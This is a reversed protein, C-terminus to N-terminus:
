IFGQAIFIAAFLSSVLTIFRFIPAIEEINRNPKLFFCQIFPSRLGTLSIFLVFLFPLSLASLPLNLYSYNACILLFINWLVLTLVVFQWYIPSGDRRPFDEVRAAPLFGAQKMCDFFKHTNKTFFVINAPYEAVTHRIRIGGWTKELSVIQQPHFKYKALLFVSLTLQNYNASLNALPQPLRMEGVSAGGILNALQPM